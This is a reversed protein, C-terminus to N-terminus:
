GPVRRCQQFQRPKAVLWGYRQWRCDAAHGHCSGGGRGSSGRRQAGSEMSQPHTRLRQQVTHSGLGFEPVNTKGIPIAGAQKLRSVVASDSEPFFDAFIPSGQTNPFGVADELDKFAIPLGHLPGTVTARDAENAREIALEPNLLSVIANVRPNIREIQEIHAIMVERASLKRERILRAM